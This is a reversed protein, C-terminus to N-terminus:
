QKIVTAKLKQVGKNKWDEPSGANQTEPEAVLFTV